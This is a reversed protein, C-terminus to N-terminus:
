SALAYKWSLGIVWRVGLRESNDSKTATSVRGPDVTLRRESLKVVLLVPGPFAVGETQTTRPGLAAQPSGPQSGTCCDRFLLIVEGGRRSPGHSSCQAM